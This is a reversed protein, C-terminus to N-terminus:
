ADKHPQPAFKYVLGCQACSYGKFRWGYYQRGGPGIPVFRHDVGAALGHVHEAKVDGRCFVCTGVPTKPPKKSEEEERELKERVEERIQKIREPTLEPVSELDHVLKQVRRKKGKPVFGVVEIRDGRVKVGDLKEAAKKANPLRPRAIRALSRKGEKSHRATEECPPPGASCRPCDPQLCADGPHCSM